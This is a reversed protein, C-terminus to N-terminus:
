LESGQRRAFGVSVVTILLSAGYLKTRTTTPAMMFYRPFHVDRTLESGMIAAHMSRAKFLLSRSQSREGAQRAISTTIVIPTRQGTRHFPVNCQVRFRAVRPTGDGIERIIPSLM